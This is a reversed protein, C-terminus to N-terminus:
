YDHLRGDSCILCSDFLMHRKKDVRVSLILAKTKPIFGTLHIIYTATIINHPKLSHKKRVVNSAVLEMVSCRRNIQM